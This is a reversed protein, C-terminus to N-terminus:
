MHQWLVVTHACLINSTPEPRINAWAHLMDHLRRGTALMKKWPLPMCQFTWTGHSPPAIECWKSVWNQWWKDLTSHHTPVIKACMNFMLSACHMVFGHSSWVCTSVHKHDILHIAHVQFCCIQTKCSANADSWVQLLCQEEMSKHWSKIRWSSLWM